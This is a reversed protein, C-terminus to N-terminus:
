GYPSNYLKMGKNEPLSYLAEIVHDHEINLWTKGDHLQWQYFKGNTLTQDTNLVSMEAVKM